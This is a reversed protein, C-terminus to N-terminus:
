SFVGIESKEDTTKAHTSNEDNEAPMFEGATLCGPCVVSMRHSTQANIEHGIDPPQDSGQGLKGTSDQDNDTEKESRGGGQDCQRHEDGENRSKSPVRMIKFLVRAGDFHEADHDNEEKDTRPFETEVFTLASATRWEGDTYAFRGSTSKGAFPLCHVTFPSRVWTRVVNCFVSRQVGFTSRM